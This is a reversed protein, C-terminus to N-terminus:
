GLRSRPTWRFRLVQNLIGLCDVFRQYKNQRSLGDSVQPGGLDGHEGPPTRVGGGGDRIERFMFGTPCSVHIIIMTCAHVMIM